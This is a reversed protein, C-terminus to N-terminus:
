AKSALKNLVGSLNNLFMILFVLSLFAIGIGAIFIFPYLWIGLIVSAEQMGHVRIALLFLQWSLLGLIATSFLYMVSVIGQELRKPFRTMLLEVEVHGSEVACYAFTFFVVTGLIYQTLEFAGPIPSNLLRRMTVDAVTLLVLVPLLGAGVFGLTRSPPVIVM